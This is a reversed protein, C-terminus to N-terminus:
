KSTIQSQSCVNKTTQVSYKYGNQIIRYVKMKEGKKVCDTHHAFSQFLSFYVCLVVRKIVTKGKIEKM